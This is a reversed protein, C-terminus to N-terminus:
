PLIETNFNLTVGFKHQYFGAMAQRMEPIGQYSQYQHALPNKLGESLAVSVEPLPQFDPSGIGMNIVKKGESILQRVERLKKSFYYEEVTQLRNAVSIM